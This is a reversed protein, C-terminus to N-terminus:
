EFCKIRYVRLILGYNMVCVKVQSSKRKHFVEWENIIKGWLLWLEEESNAAGNTSTSVQSDQSLDQAATTANSSGSTVSIQSTDSSRRSHGNGGLSNLSKADTEILRCDFLNKHTDILFLNRQFIIHSSLLKKIKVFIEVVILFVLIILIIRTRSKSAFYYVINQYVFCENM